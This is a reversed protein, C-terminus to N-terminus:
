RGSDTQASTCRTPFSKWEAADAPREAGTTAGDERMAPAPGRPRSRRSSGFRNNPPSRVACRPRYHVSTACRRRSIEYTNSKIPAGTLIFIRVGIYKFYRQLKSHGAAQYSRTDRRGGSSWFLETKRKPARDILRAFARAPKRARSSQCAFPSWFGFIKVHHRKLRRSRFVIHIDNYARDNDRQFAGDVKAHTVSACAAGQRRGISHRAMSRAANRGASGQSASFGLYEAILLGGINLFIRTGISRM